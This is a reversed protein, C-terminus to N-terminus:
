ASAAKASRPANKAATRNAYRGDMTRETMRAASASETNTSMTTMSYVPNSSCSAAPTTNQCEGRTGTSNASGDSEHPAATRGIAANKASDSSRTFRM